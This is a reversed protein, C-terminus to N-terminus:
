WFANVYHRIEPVGNRGTVYDIAVVDFRAEYQVLGNIHIFGKAVKRIQRRKAPTVAEEPLGFGHSRRAKVEVFVYFGGDRMILDIEGARGFRFNQKVLRYGLDLLYRLAIEENRAGVARRNLMADREM